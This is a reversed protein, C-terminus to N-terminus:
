ASFNALANDSTLTGPTGEGVQLAGSFDSLGAKSSLPTGVSGCTENSSEGGVLAEEGTGGDGDRGVLTDFWGTRGEGGANSSM